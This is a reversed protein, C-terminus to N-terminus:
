SRACSVSGHGDHRTHAWVRSLVRPTYCSTPCFMSAAPRFSPTFCPAVLPRAGLQYRRYSLASATPAAVEPDPWMFRLGRSIKRLVDGLSVDTYLHMAILALVVMVMSLKRERQEVAGEEQLVAEIAARPVGQSIAELTVASSLKSGETIERIRYGM